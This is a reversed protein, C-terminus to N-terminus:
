IKGSDPHRKLLLANAEEASKENGLARHARTLLTLAEAGLSSNPYQELMFNIRNIAAVM